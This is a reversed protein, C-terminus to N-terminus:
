NNIREEKEMGNIKKSNELSLYSIEPVNEPVCLKLSLKLVIQSFETFNILLEKAKKRGRGNRRIKHVIQLVIEPVIESFTEPVIEPCNPFNQLLVTCGLWKDKRKPVKVEIPEFFCIYNELIATLFSTSHGQPWRLCTVWNWFNPFVVFQHIKKHVITKYVGHVNKSRCWLDITLLINIYWYWM